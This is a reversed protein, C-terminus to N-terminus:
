CRLSFLVSVLFYTCTHVYVCVSVHVGHMIDGACPYFFLRTFVSACLCVMIVYVCSM